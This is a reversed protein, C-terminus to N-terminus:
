KCVSESIDAHGETGGRGHRHRRQRISHILQNSQSILQIWQNSQDMQDSETPVSLKKPPQRSRPWSLPM